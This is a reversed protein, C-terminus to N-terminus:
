DGAAPGRWAVQYLDLRRERLNRVSGQLRVEKLLELDLDVILTTETNATSEAAVADHPFAFDAPTFVASQSYQIDMNSIDPINGVSGAIAVYCENEIARAQACRRIRLYGHKTDTWYPVFLINVEREALVRALEPFEVDYCVLIGVTGVDTDFTQLRRGGALGWYHSEDPTIHLKYQAEWTGDRRCLYSVCRLRRRKYEPMSGAVVNINYQIALDVMRARIEETMAALARVADADNMDKFGAMLPANFYEPFLVFDANYSAVVDIFYEAQRMLADVSATPRMQWQLVGIRVTSKREGILAKEQQYYINIWELLVAYGHSERDEPLYGTIIRRVHFDNVFQFGLVRDFLEKDRVRQVYAQPTLEAAYPAYGPIRAGIIIRRLNLNECLEKRADYLRRGLRLGRYDPHVFLDVGYLTDGGADHNTLFGGAVIRDYTHHDGYKAYDVIMSVAAAVVRGADEICMQGEPFLRIQSAFEAETWAGGMAGYVADMIARIDDYDTLRTNRLELRHGKKKRRKRAATGGADRGPKRKAM